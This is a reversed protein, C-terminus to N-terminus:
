PSIGSRKSGQPITRRSGFQPADPPGADPVPECFPEVYTYQADFSVTCTDAWLTLVADVIGRDDVGYTVMTMFGGVMYDDGCPQSPTVCLNTLQDALSAVLGL